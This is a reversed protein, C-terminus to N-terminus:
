NYWSSSPPPDAFDEDRFEVYLQEGILRYPSNEKLLVRGVAATDAPMPRPPQIKLSM